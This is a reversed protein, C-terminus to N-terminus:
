SVHFPAGQVRLGMKIGMGENQHLFIAAGVFNPTPPDLARSSSFVRATLQSIGTEVRPLAAAQQPTHLPRSLLTFPGSVPQTEGCRVAARQLVKTPTCDNSITFQLRTSTLPLPRTPQSADRAVYVPRAMCWGRVGGDRPLPEM